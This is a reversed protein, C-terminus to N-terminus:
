LNVGKFVTTDYFAVFQTHFRRQGGDLWSVVINVGDTRGNSNDFRVLAVNFTDKDFSRLDGILMTAGTTATDVGGEGSLHVVCTATLSMTTTVCSSTGTCTTMPPNNLNSSTYGDLLDAKTSFNGSTCNTGDLMGSRLVTPGQTILAARVRHAIAGARVMKNAVSNQRSAHLIGQLVGVLGLLLVLSAFLGEILSVGRQRNKLKLRM